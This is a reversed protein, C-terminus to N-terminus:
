KAVQYTIPQLAQYKVTRGNLEAPLWDPGKSIVRIAEQVLLPHVESLQANNVAKVDSVKGKADVIFQIIVTQQAITENRKLKIHKVALRTNLNRQLYIRWGNLGGPFTATKDVKTFFLTTDYQAPPAVVPVNQSYSNLSGLLIIGLFITNKM